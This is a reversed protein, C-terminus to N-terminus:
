ASGFLNALTLPRDSIMIIEKALMQELFDVLDIIIQEYDGEYEATIKQAIEDVRHSGDLMSWIFAGSENVVKAQHKDALVFIMEEGLRKSLIDSRQIPYSDLAIM